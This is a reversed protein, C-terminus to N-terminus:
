LPEALKSKLLWEAETLPLDCEEGIKFPGYTMDDLGKYPQIDKLVRIKKFASSTANGIIYNNEDSNLLNDLNSRSNTILQRIQDLMTQEEKTLGPITSEGRLAILVIKEERKSRITLAIKKVNEYEKFALISKSSMAEQKKKFLFESVQIYFNQELTTIAASSMEKKQIDRLTSYSLM